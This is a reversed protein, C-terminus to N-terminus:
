VRLLPPHYHHLVPRRHAALVNVNARDSENTHIGAIVKRMGIGIGRMETSHDGHILGTETMEISHGGLTPGIEIREITHEAHTRDIEITLGEHIHDIGIATMTDGLDITRGTAIVRGSDKRETRRRKGPKSRGRWRRCKRM